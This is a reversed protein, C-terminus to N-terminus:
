LISEIIQCGMMWVTPNVEGEGSQQIHLHTSEQNDMWGGHGRIVAPFDPTYQGDQCCIINITSIVTIYVCVGPYEQGKSVESYAPPAENDILRSNAEAMRYSHLNSYYFCQSYNINILAAVLVATSVQGCTKQTSLKRKPGINKRVLDLPIRAIM